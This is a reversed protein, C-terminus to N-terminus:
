DTIFLMYFGIENEAHLMDHMSDYRRVTFVYNQYYPFFKRVWRTFYAKANSRTGVYTNSVFSDCYLAFYFKEEM